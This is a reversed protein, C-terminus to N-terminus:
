TLEDIIWEAASGDFDNVTVLEVIRAQYWTQSASLAARARMIDEVPQLEPGATVELVMSGISSDVPGVFGTQEANFLFQDLEGFAGQPVWGVEGNEGAFVTDLNLEAAVEEFAEGSELRELASQASTSTETVIWRVFVQEGEGPQLSLFRNNVRDRLLDGALTDRYEAETVGVADLFERYILEGVSGLADPLTGDESSALPEFRRIIEFDVEVPSVSVALSEANQRLVANRVLTNFAFQPQIAGTLQGGAPAATAALVRAYPAVERLKIEQGGVVAVTRRPPQFDTVYYGVGLLAVLIVAVAGAGWLLLRRQGQEIDQRSRQQDPARGAFHGREARRRQRM